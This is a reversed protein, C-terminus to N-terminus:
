GLKILIQKSNLLFLTIPVFLLTMIFRGRNLYVSVQEIKGAGVAQSVLTDLAANFGYVFSLASINVTMNGLGVGAMMAPNNLSGIFSLNLIETVMGVMAGLCAPVALRFILKARQVFTDNPAKELETKKSEEKLKEYEDKQPM